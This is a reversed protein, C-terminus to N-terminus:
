LRPAYPSFLWFPVRQANLKRGEVHSDFFLIDVLGGHRREKEHMMRALSVPNAQNRIDFTTTTPGFINWAAYGRTKMEYKKANEQNIETIYGVEVPRPISSLRHYLTDQFVNPQAQNASIDLSNVIYHLPKITADKIGPCQFLKSGRFYDDLKTQDLADAGTFQKGGVYPALLNAWMVGSGFLDGPVNDRFDVAYLQAAIGFQKLTNVCQIRQAKEKAKSLAPLLMAALIAIIAIVVLLEILTFASATSNKTTSMALPGFEDATPQEALSSSLAMSWGSQVHPKANKM